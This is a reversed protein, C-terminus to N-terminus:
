GLSLLVIGGVTVLIGLIETLRVKDKFFIVSIPIVLIPSISALATAVGVPIRQISLLLLTTGVACGTIGSVALQPIVMPQKMDRRFGPWSHRVTGVALFALIASLLRIESCLLTKDELSGLIELARTSLLVGSAQGLMGFFALVVGFMKERRGAKSDEKSNSAVAIVAGCFVFVIGSIQEISIHQQYFFYAYLATILPNSYYIIMGLRYPLRLFSAFFLLDAVVFGIIGSLAMLTLASIPIVPFLVEGTTCIRFLFISLFAFIIKGFTTSFLSIRQELSNLLSCCCADCLSVGLAFCEGIFYNNM